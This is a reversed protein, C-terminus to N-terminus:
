SSLVSDYVKISSLSTDLKEAILSIWAQDLNTFGRITDGGIIAIGTDGLPQLISAQTNMPLFPLESRGPYLSLNALYSQKGSMLVSTCLSGQMLKRVDVVVAEGDRAESEAAVGIQLHCNGGHVIVLSRCCTTGSLSEWAWLLERAVQNPLGSNIRECKVGQPAVPSIYKPKISLWVLGTLLNTVALGLALIDARSQSSSADAVPAVGSFARNALVAALSLAGVYIPMSRVFADNDAVWDRVKDRRPKPGRYEGQSISSSSTSFPKTPTSSPLPSELFKLSTSVPFCTLTPLLPLLGMGM